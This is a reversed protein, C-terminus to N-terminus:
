IYGGDYEAFQALWSDIVRIIQLIDTDNKWALYVNIFRIKLMHHSHIKVLLEASIEAECGYFEKLKSDYWLLASVFM